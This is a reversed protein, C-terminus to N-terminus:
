RRKKTILSVPIYALASWFIIDLAAGVPSLTAICGAPCDSLSILPLPLWRFWLTAATGSYDSSGAYYSAVVLLTGSLASIALRKSTTM